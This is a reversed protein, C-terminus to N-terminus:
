ENKQQGPLWLLSGEQSTFIKAQFNVCSSYLKSRFSSTAPFALNKTCKEKSVGKSEQMNQQGSENFHEQGPM